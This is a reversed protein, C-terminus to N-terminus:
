LRLDCIGSLQAPVTRNCTQAFVVARAMVSRTSQLKQLEFFLAL